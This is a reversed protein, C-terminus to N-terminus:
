QVAIKGGTYTNLDFIRTGQRYEEEERSRLWILAQHECGKRGCIIAQNPDGLALFPGKYEYRRGTPQGHKKCRAMAM